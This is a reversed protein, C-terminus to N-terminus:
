PLTLQYPLTYLLVGFSVVKMDRVKSKTLIDPLPFVVRYKNGCRNQAPSLGKLVCKRAHVVLHRVGSSRVADVFELLEEYSERKCIGIRCQIGYLCVVTHIIIPM